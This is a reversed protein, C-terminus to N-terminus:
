KKPLQKANKVAGIEIYIRTGHGEDIVVHAPTRYVRDFAYEGAPWQKTKNFGKGNVIVETDKKLTVTIM